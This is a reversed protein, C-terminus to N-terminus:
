PNIPTAVPLEEIIVNNGDGPAQAQAQPKSSM